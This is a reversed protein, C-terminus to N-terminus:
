HLSFHQALTPKNYTVQKRVNVCRLFLVDQIVTPRRIKQWLEAWGNTVWFVACKVSWILPIKTDLIEWGYM